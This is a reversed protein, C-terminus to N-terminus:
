QILTQECEGVCHKGCRALRAYIGWGAGRWIKSLLSIRHLGIDIVGSHLYAVLEPEFKGQEIQLPEGKDEGDTFFTAEGGQEIGQLLLGVQQGLPGIGGEKGRDSWLQLALDTAQHGGIEYAVLHKAVLLQNTAPTLLGVVVAEARVLRSQLPQM